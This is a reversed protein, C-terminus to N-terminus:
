VAVAKQSPPQPVNFPLLRIRFLGRKDPPFAGGPHRKRHFLIYGSIWSLYNEETRLSYNLRRLREQTLNLFPSKM